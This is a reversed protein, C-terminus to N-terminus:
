NSFLLNRTLVLPLDKGIAGISRIDFIKPNEAFKRSMWLNM